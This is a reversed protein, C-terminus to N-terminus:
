ANFRLLDGGVSLDGKVIFPMRRYAWFLLASHSRWWAGENARMGTSIARDIFNNIIDSSFTSFQINRLEFQRKLL